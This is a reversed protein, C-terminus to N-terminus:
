RIDDEVKYHSIIACLLGSKGDDWQLEHNILKWRNRWKALLYTLERQLEIKYNYLSKTCVGGRVKELSENNRERLYNQSYSRRTTTSNHSMEKNVIERERAINENNNNWDVDWDRRLQWFCIIKIILLLSYKTTVQKKEKKDLFLNERHALWFNKRLSEYAWTKQLYLEHNKVRSGSLVKVVLLEIM